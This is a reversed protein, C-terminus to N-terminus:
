KPLSSITTGDRLANIPNLTYYKFLIVLLFSAPRIGSIASNKLSFQAM